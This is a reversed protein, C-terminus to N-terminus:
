ERLVVTGCRLPRAGERARRRGACPEPPHARAPQARQHRGVGRARLAAAAEDTFSAFQAYFGSGAERLELLRETFWREIDAEDADVYVTLDVLPALRTTHLGELVLVDPAAFVRADTVVDYLDHSYVPVRLERDGRRVRDVFAELAAHDYTEPFGKRM